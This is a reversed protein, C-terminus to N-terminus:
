EVTIGDDAGITLRLFRAIAHETIRLKFQDPICEAGVVIRRYDFQQHQSSLAGIFNAGQAPRFNDAVADHQRRRAGLIATLMDDCDSRSHLAEQIAPFAAVFEYEPAPLAPWEAAPAYTL